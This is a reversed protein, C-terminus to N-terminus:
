RIAEGLRVPGLLGPTADPEIGLAVAVQELLWSAQPCERMKRAVEDCAQGVDQSALLRDLQRHMRRASLRRALVVGAVGLRRARLANDFQDYAFPVILQPVGARFAEAMTGIGGHHVVAAIRPLLVTFPVQAQWMVDAPLHNHRDPRDSRGPWDPLQAAHPTIFLGRRGLRQLADLAASFYRAAHRHGTGPTFVIPPDGASLFRELEASLAAPATADAAAPWFDGAVFPQPWDPQVSAFWDPFLGVSANPAKLMHEFFHPLRPQRYQLRAANLSPLTVPDIWIKHILHWLSRRWWLPVWAPIRLSGTTLLDHSSCLNSPALYAAVIRLDPRVARALAAMPVLIPHSLVVCPEDAPLRQVMDHLAGLQPVLGSWIVGWGKQEDWLDPNNLLSQGQEPTGFTEYALGTAQVSAEQFGPVLMRVRHGRERLGQALTIFPQM